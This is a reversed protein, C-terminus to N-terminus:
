TVPYWILFDLDERYSEVSEDYSIPQHREFVGTFGTANKIADIVPQRLDICDTKTKGYLSVQLLAQENNTVRDTLTYEPEIHIQYFICPYTPPQPLKGISYRDEVLATLSAQAVFAAKVLSEPSAM